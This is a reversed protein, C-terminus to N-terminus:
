PEVEGNLRNIFRKRYISSLLVGFHQLHHNRSKDLDYLLVLVGHYFFDYNGCLFIFFGHLFWNAHM